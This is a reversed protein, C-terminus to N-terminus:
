GVAAYVIRSSTEGPLISSLGESHCRRSQTTQARSPVNPPTSQLMPMASGPPRGARLLRAPPPASGRSHVPTTPNRQENDIYLLTDM